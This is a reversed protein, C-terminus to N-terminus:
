QGAARVTSGARSRYERPSQGYAEKFVRSFYAADTFGWRAAIASIGRHSLAPDGLDSLCRELRREKVWRSVTSGQDHFLQHLYRVSVHNARAITEPNLAPSDLHLEIWRRVSVLVSRRIPDLDEPPQGLRDSFL